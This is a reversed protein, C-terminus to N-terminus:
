CYIYEGTWNLRSPMYGICSPIAENHDINLKRSHYSLWIRILKYVLQHDSEIYM